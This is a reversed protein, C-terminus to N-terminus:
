VELVEWSSSDDPDFHYEKKSNYKWTGNYEVIIGGILKKGKKNEKQLYKYLGNHRPGADKATNGSKTDFLGITGDNFQIIFDVFFLADKDNEDVYPVSFYKKESEGNKYWWKIKSSNSLREIFKEETTQLKKSYFPEMICLPKKLEKCNGKFSMIKPVEWEETIDEERKSPVNGVIKEKYEAKASNIADWFIQYNEAGLVVQQARPSYKEIGFENELFQYLATKLRDSSDRPAYPSCASRVYEDFRNQLDKESINTEIKGKIEIEGTKDINPIIGDSLLPKVIKTPDELIKSKLTKTIKTNNFIKAFESSLRTRERQRKLYISKIKIPTYLTENRHSEYQSVYDRVYEEALEINELNTFIYGKNLEPIKYHKLEPMRMIRGITQITFEFSKYERFVVLISARPCDWGISIAQKFILVEVENDNKEINPLTESKEESLWIGLKGNETTINYKEKLLKVVDDRKDEMLQKKDPLQILLLPNVKSNEKEFEKKLSERKKLAQDIVISDADQSKIKLKLFEPNVLIEDKIMEEEIVDELRVKYSEDVDKLKPTASVELTVKPSLDHIIELSKEGGAAYHSEDIILILKHGNDKTKQVVASLNRDEENDMVYINNKKNISEWNFFLIENQDIKNDQLDEFNSCNLIQDHYIRELKDKSQDHLKRPAIWVFSLVDDKRETVLKRLLDAVVVTKGSGTPSKFSCIEQESSKLMREFRDFLEEVALKQYDRLEIM